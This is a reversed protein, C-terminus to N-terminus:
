EIAASLIHTTADKSYLLWNRVYPSGNKHLFINLIVTYFATEYTAWQISVNASM